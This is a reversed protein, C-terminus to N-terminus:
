PGVTGSTVPAPAAVVTLSRPQPAHDFFHPTRGQVVEHGRASCPTPRDHTAADGVVPSQLEVGLEIAEAACGNRCSAVHDRLPMPVVESYSLHAARRGDRHDLTSTQRPRAAPAEDGPTGRDVLEPDGRPTLRLRNAEGGAVDQEDRPAVVHHDLLVVAAPVDGPPPVCAAITAPHHGLEDTVHHRALPRRVPWWPGIGLMKWM